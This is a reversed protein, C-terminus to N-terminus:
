KHQTALTNLALVAVTLTAPMKVGNEAFSQM